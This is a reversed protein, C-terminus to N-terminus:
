RTVQIRAYRFHTVAIGAAVVAAGVLWVLATSADATPGSTTVGFTRTTLADPLETALGILALNPHSDRLSEAVAGSAFFVLVIAASAFGRRDTFSSIAMSISTFLAAVVFGAALIRMAMLMTDAANGVSQGQMTNALLFLMQPGATVLALGTMISAAKAVLYTTRTLPSALYLGLMGTRRDPCLVDPASFAAFLVVALLVYGYYDPYSPLNQAVTPDNRVLAVVGVFVIAPVYSIFVVAAPLLKAWVSRRIGMMRQMSFWWLARISAGLGLRVGDYSRYGRELIQASGFGTAGAASPAAPRGPPPPPDSM